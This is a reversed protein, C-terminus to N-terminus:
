TIQNTWTNCVHPQRIPRRTGLKNSRSVHPGLGVDFLDILTAGNVAERM